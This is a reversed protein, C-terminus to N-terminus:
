SEEAPQVIRKEPRELEETEVCGVMAFAAAILVLKRM